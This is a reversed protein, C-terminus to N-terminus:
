VCSCGISMKLSACVCVRLKRARISASALAPDVLILVTYAVCMRLAGPQFSTGSRCAALHQTNNPREKSNRNVIVYGQYGTYRMCKELEFKVLIRKRGPSRGPGRQFLNRREGLGRIRSPLPISVKLLLAVEVNFVPTDSSPARAGRRWHGTAM